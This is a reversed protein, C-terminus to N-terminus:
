NRMKLVKKLRFLFIPIKKILNRLSKIFMELYNKEEMAHGHYAVASHSSSFVGFHSKKQEIGGVSTSFDWPM